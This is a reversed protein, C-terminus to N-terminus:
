FFKMTMYNDNAEKCLTVELIKQKRLVEENSFAEEDGIELIQMETTLSVREM